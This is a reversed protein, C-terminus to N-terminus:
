NTLKQRLQSIQDSTVGCSKIYEEIGGSENIIQLVLDLYKLNVDSESALYDARVVDMSEDVLLHLMTMVIGTRDKGAFCHIMVSGENENLITLLVEKIQDKCGIVFFRYAIEENTGSHYDRKFWEPQNWPDFQAKVYRFKLLAPELYPIEEIERDARLDVVTKINRELLLDDFRRESQYLSMTATRYVIGSKIKPNHASIDRFNWFFDREYIWECFDKVENLKQSPILGEISNYFFDLLNRKCQNADPLYLTANLNYFSKLEDKKLVKAIFNKPLFRFKDHGKSLYNLQVVVELAINYFFYFQYSDSLRHMMSCSEFEYIFKDILDSIQKEKHQLTKNKQYDAVIQNLYQRVLYREPQREFLITQEVDKIESGLYNRDIETVDKCITIEIRPQDKLYVLVKSRLEVSRISKIEAKFQNKLQVLLNEYDFGQSVLLQIDVDSNPTAENRGFSGYLLAVEVAAVNPILDKFQNITDTQKM